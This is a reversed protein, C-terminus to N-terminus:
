DYLFSLSNNGRFLPMLWHQKQAESGYRWLLEMNGSDPANCNFVTPAILSRGTLEAIHAYEQVTLGQGLVPDPLFMNWLGAQKAKNKLGEIQTPWQWKTWDGGQNLTHVENWFETEIPEIENKIFTQTRQIFDQARVSLNFM